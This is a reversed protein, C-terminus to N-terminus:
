KTKKIFLYRSNGNRYNTKMVYELWVQVQVDDDWAFVPYWAFWKVPEKEEVRKERYLIM